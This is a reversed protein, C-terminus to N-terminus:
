RRPCVLDVTKGHASLTGNHYVRRPRNHQVEGRRAGGWNVERALAERSRRLYGVVKLDIVSAGSHDTKGTLGVAIYIYVSRPSSHVDGALSINKPSDDALRKGPRSIPFEMEVLVAPKAGLGVADVAHDREPIDRISKWGGRM